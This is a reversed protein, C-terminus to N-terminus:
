SYFVFNASKLEGNPIFEFDLTNSCMQSRGTIVMVKAEIRQHSLGYSLHDIIPTRILLVNQHSKEKDITGPLEIFEGGM